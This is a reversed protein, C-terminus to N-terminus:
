DAPHVRSLQSRYDASCAGSQDKEPAAPEHEKAPERQERDGLEAEDM